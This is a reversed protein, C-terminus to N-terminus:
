ISEEEKGLIQALKQRGRFMRNKVTGPSLRLAEGIEKISLGEMYHLVIPLRLPEALLQLAEDLHMDEVQPAPIDETLEWLRVKRKRLIDRSCNVVIRTMWGRFKTDDRLTYLRQWARMLAEQLADACDENNHLVTYSIRYLMDRHQDVAATFDREDM